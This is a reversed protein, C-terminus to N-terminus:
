KLLKPETQNVKTCHRFLCVEDYSYLQTGVIEIDGNPSKEALLADRAAEAVDDVSVLALKGDGSATFIQNMERIGYCFFTGFNEVFSL